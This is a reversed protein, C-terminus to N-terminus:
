PAARLDSGFAGALKLMPERAARLAGVRKKMEGQIGIEKLLSVVPKDGDEALATALRNRYDLDTACRTLLREWDSTLKEAQVM